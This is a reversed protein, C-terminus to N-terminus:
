PVDPQTEDRVWALYDARGELVPIALIEPVEYPHMGRIAAEVAAFLERRTKIVCQWEAASEVKGKWRYTSRIPGCTVQACAALRREVLASAIRQADDRNPLTTVVQIVDTM